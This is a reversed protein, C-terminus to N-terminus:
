PNDTGARKKTWDEETRRWVQAILNKWEERAAEKNLEERTTIVLPEKGWISIFKGSDISM